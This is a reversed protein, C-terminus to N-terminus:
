PLAANIVLAKIRTGQQSLQAAQAAFQEQAKDKSLRPARQKRYDNDDWQDCNFWGVVYLGHQCRNDKLYRDMLQTEMASELEQNWCGKVEIIATVSDYVDKHPDQIVADVHIDTREGRHIQVERNVIVGRERLDEDLHIKVYDSFSNEDKPKYVNKNTRDWLFEAAPTEGQLKEELRRLTEILVDLLQYGGQVLRAQQSSAVRLIDRPRSPTWTRRRAINQAELLTWKLWDLEPLERSIWRIAECAQATGREKLHGLISDRWRAVSERPGVPHFQEIIPDEAYPYHRVLWVYLDALRDETLRRGVSAARWGDVQAVASIIEQGFEADQQIAPWVASWGADEAHTMLVRAVVLARSRSDGDSPPPLPLLSEAFARAEDIQHDLLDGLLCGMCEPKLKKGKAKILLANALRDDWCYEVKRTTFIHDHEENERDIMIM